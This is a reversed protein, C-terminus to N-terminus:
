TEDIGIGFIHAFVEDLSIEPLEDIEKKTDDDMDDDIDCIPECIGDCTYHWKYFM